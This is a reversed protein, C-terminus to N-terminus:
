TTCVQDCPDRGCYKPHNKRHLGDGASSEAEPLPRVGDRLRSKALGRYEVSKSEGAAGPVYRSVQNPYYNRLGEHLIIRSANLDRDEVHHCAQNECRYERESLSLKPKVHGCKRCTKTSPYYRDIELCIGGFQETKYHLQRFIEGLGEDSISKALSHNRKMGDLNLDEIFVKQHKKAIKTTTKHQWDYRINRIRHHLRAEKRCAKIRNSSGKKKKNKIRSLRKLKPELKRLAKPSKYVKGDSLTLTTKIGADIGVADNKHQVTQLPSELEVGFSAYWHGAKQKFHVNGIKGKFRLAEKMQVWGLRPVWVKTLTEDLKVKDSEVVFQEVSVGKKKFKPFGMPRGKRKGTRSDFFNKMADGLHSLAMASVCKNVELLWEHEPKMEHNFRKRLERWSTSQNGEFSDKWESLGWNFTFRAIGGCKRFHIEQEATPMLRIQHARHM